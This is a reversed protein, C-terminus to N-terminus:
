LGAEGECAERIQSYIDEPVACHLSRSLVRKKEAQRVCQPDRCIYAGRGPIKGEPDFVPAEGKVKVVRFLEDRERMQRCAACQRKFRKEQSRTM